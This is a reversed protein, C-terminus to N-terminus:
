IAYAGGGAGELAIPDLPVNVCSVTENALAKKITGALAAPDEVHYGIGGMAEVIKDYRTPALLTGVARDNGYLAKQPLWIQGWAADNGVVVTVPCGFRICTDYDFGNLGFSGDGQIVLVKREPFLLKAALAFPAGVGLCGFPGPDLWTGPLKRDVVKATVSVVNGGDAVLITDDDIAEAIARAFAFHTMPIAKDHERARQKELSKVEIARLQERWGPHKAPRGHALLQSLVSKADGILPIQIDRNRGLESGDADIAIAIAKGNFTSENGYGLRFDLPTGVFLAADCELLAERRSKVFVHEDGVDFCSRAMGNFYLPVDLRKALGIAEAHAGDWHISNGVMMVPREAEALRTAAAAVLEPDALRGGKPRYARPIPARDEEVMESLIDWPIELFAPGPRGTTMARFASALYAPILEAREVRQALKTIPRLLAVQETEQLAGKTSLAQPAAGGILLVPSEAAKANAIGTIADTVGPGATVVAVGIGRSLRAYADAAHAAAQEHRTDVVKIGEDLCGDYIPAVHLGSLTFIHRVGEQKLMKAVLRGGMMTSM